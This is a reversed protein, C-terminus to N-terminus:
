LRSAGLGKMHLIIVLDNAIQTYLHYILLNEELYTNLCLDRAEQIFLEKM